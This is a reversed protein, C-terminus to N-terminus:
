VNALGKGRVVSDANKYPSTKHSPLSNTDVCSQKTKKIMDFERNQKTTDLIVKQARQEEVGKAGSM